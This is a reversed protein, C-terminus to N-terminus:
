QFYFNKKKLNFEYEGRIDNNNINKFSHRVGKIWHLSKQILNLITRPHFLSIQM